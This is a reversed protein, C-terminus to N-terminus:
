MKKNKIPDENSSVYSIWTQFADRSNGSKVMDHMQRGVESKLLESNSEEIFPALGLNESHDAVVLFDLPKILRVRLGHSTLVEEGRAFRFAVDPGLTNGFM